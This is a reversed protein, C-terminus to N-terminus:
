CAVDSRELLGGPYTCQRLNGKGARKVEYMLKDAIFIVQEVDAPVQLCTLAGVSFTVRPGSASVIESSSLIRGLTDRCAAEDTDPLLLAFEDGGLRGISDTSRLRARCIAVFGKLLEDGASHGLLDNVSKFDDLDIYAISFSQNSRTAREMEKGVAQFFAKRNLAGTLSDTIALRQVEDLQTRLLAVFYAIVGYVTGRVLVNWVPIWADSYVEGALLNSVMLTTSEVFAFVLGVRLGLTWAPLLILIFYLPALSIEYGIEYDIAGTLVTAVLLLVWAARSPLREFRKILGLLNSQM